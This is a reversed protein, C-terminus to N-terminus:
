CIKHQSKIRSITQRIQDADDVDRTLQDATRIADKIPGLRNKVANLNNRKTKVKELRKIAEDHLERAKSVKGRWEDKRNKYTKKFREDERQSAQLGNWWKEVGDLTNQVKGLAEKTKKESGTAAELEDDAEDLLKQIQAAIKQLTERLRAAEKRAKSLDAMDVARAGEFQAGDPHTILFMKAQLTPEVGTSPPFFLKSISM